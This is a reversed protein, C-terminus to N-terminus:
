RGRTTTTAIPRDGTRTDGSCQGLAVDAPSTPSGREPRNVNLGKSIM